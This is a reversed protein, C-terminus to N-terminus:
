RSVRLAAVEPPLALADGEKVGAKGAQGRNLEIAYRSPRSTGFEGTYPEMQGIATIRGGSDVFLIDLPIRTNKMWFRRPAEDPFVFIRGHDSRMWDRRMLGTEREIPEDAIELTFTRGGIQMRTTPLNSQPGDQCAALLLLALLPWALRLTTWVRLSKM